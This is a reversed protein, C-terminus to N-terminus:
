KKYKIQKSKLIEENTEEKIKTMIKQLEKAKELDTLSKYETTKSFDVFAKETKLGLVRQYESLEKGNLNLPQKKGEKSGDDLMYNITKDAVRPIQITEGSRDYIELAMKEAPTPNFKSTRSPNILTQFVNNLGEAGYNQLEEKGVTSYKKPLDESLFPIKAQNKTIISGKIKNENYTNRVNKDTLKTVQSLASGYPVFQNLGNLATNTLGDILREGGSAGYGGFLDSVGTLLSQDFLTKGGSQIANLIINKAEKDTKKQEFIDAGIMLPIAAPQIWDITSYSNGSKISYPLRGAQKELAKADTDKAGKGYLVGNKAMEYGAFILASGTLGRSLQDVAAKQDLAGTKIGKVIKAFGQVGGIPSYDIAKDLINAPTKIFPLAMDGINFETGTVRKGLGNLVNKAMQMNKTLTNVNQFTREEADKIAKEVMTETVEGGNLKLQQAISGTFAAEFFPRDGMSLLTHTLKESGSALNNLHEIVTTPNDIKRFAQAKPIDYLKNTELDTYRGSMRSTDIGLKSDEWGEKAGKIFGKLQEAISPITTTRQGTFKSVAKDIPTAIIDKVNELSAMVMNGTINRVNTKTNLLLNIRQAALIKDKTTAPIKEAIMKKILAFEIDKERTTKAAQIKDMKDTILKIDKDTLSPIGNKELVKEAMRVVDKLEDLTSNDIEDKIVKNDIKSVEDKIVKTVKPSPTKLIEDLPKTPETKQIKDLIDNVIIKTEEAMKEAAEVKKPNVTKIDEIVKDITKQAVLMMGEPTQKKWTSISHVAQGLSTAQIRIKKLWSKLAETDGSVKSDQILKNTIMAAQTIDEANMLGEKEGNAKKILNEYTNSFNEELNIKASEILDKDHLVEYEGSINEVVKKAQEDQLFEAKAYTNTRMKSINTDGLSTYATESTASPKPEVKINKKQYELPLQKPIENNEYVKSTGDKFEVKVKGYANSKITGEKGEVMINKGITNKNLQEIKNQLEKPTLGGEVPELSDGQIIERKKASHQMAEAKLRKQKVEENGMPMKKTTEVYEKHEAELKELAITKSDKPEIKPKANPIPPPTAPQKTEVKPTPKKPKDNIKLKEFASEGITFETGRANKLIVQGDNEEVIECEGFKELKVKKGANIVPENRLQQELLEEEDMIKTQINKVNDVNKNVAKLVETNLNQPTNTPQPTNVQQPITQPRPPQQPTIHGYEERFRNIIKEREAMKPIKSYNDGTGYVENKMMKYNDAPPIFEGYLDDNYGDSLRKDIVMEVRKALAYNEKGNDEIVDNIAKELIDKNTKFGAAKQKANPSPTVALLREIDESGVSKVADNNDIITGNADKINGVGGFSFRKFEERLAQAEPEIYDRMEPHLYGMAKVKQKGINEFDRNPIDNESPKFNGGVVHPQMKGNPNNLEYKTPPKPITNTIPTTIPKIETKPINTEDVIDTIPKIAEMGPKIAEIEAKPTNVQTEELTDTIAKYSPQPINQPKAIKKGLRGLGEMGLGFVAGSGFDEIRNSVFDKTDGKAFDTMGGMLVNETGERLAKNVFGSKTINDLKGIFPLKNSITSSLALNTGIEGTKYVAKGLGEQAAERESLYNRLNEKQKEASPVDKNEIVDPIVSRIAKNVYKNTVAEGVTDGFGKLVGETLPKLTNEFLWAAQDVIPYKERTKKFDEKRKEQRAEFEAITEKGARVYPSKHTKAKAEEEAKQQSFRKEEDKKKLNNVYNTSFSNNKPLSPLNNENRKINNTTTPQWEAAMGSRMTRNIQETYINSVDAEAKKRDKESLYRNKPNAM